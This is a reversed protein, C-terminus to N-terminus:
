FDHKLLGFGFPFHSVLGNAMGRIPQSLRRETTGGSFPLM